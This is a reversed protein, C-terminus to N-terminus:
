DLVMAGCCLPALCDSSLLTVFFRRNWLMGPCRNQPASRAGDALSAPLWLYALMPVLNKSEHLPFDAGTRAPHAM